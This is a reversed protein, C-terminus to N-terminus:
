QVYCLSPDTCEGEQILFYHHQEKQERKQTDHPDNEYAWKQEKTIKKIEPTYWPITKAKPKASVTKLEFAEETSNRELAAVFVIQFM